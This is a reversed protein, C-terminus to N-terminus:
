RRMWKTAGYFDEPYKKALEEMSVPKALM